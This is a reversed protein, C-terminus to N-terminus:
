KKTMDARLFDVWVQINILLFATNQFAAFYNFLYFTSNSKEKRATNEIGKKKGLRWCYLLFYQLTEPQLQLSHCLVILTM